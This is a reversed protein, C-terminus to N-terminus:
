YMLALYVVWQRPRKVPFGLQDPSLVVFNWDWEFLLETFPDRGFGDTCEQVIVEEQQDKRIAVWVLFHGYALSNTTEQDGMPSHATCPTGAWHCQARANHISCDKGHRVCYAKSKIAKGKQVADKLKDEM